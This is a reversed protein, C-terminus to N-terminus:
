YPNTPPTFASTWRAKGKSIRLEDMWGALKEANTNDVRGISLLGAHDTFAVTPGTISGFVTLASGDVFCYWNSIGQRVFAVHYWTNLQPTWSFAAIIPQAGSVTDSLAIIESSTALMLSWKNSADTYKDMLGVYTMGLYNFRVRFDITFDQLGFNFDNSDSLTLYDGDAGFVASTVGFVKQATVTKVAGNPTVAKGTEEPFIVGNNAGEMQMLLKVFGDFGAESGGTPIAGGDKVMHDNTGNWVALHNAATTGTDSVNGGGSTGTDIVINTSDSYPAVLGSSFSGTEIINGTINANDVKTLSIAYDTTKGYFVCGNIIVNKLNTTSDSVLRIAYYGSNGTPVGIGVGIFYLHHWFYTGINVHIGDKSFNEISTDQVHLIMTAANASSNDIDIGYGFVGSGGPPSMNIKLNTIKGGGSSEIRIAADANYDITNFNSNVISWDGADNNVTNQIKMGYKVPNISFVDNATWQAGVEIDFNIYFGYISVSDYDVKQELYSGATKIGASGSTPTGAYTNELSINEFKAYDATVTFLAANSTTFNIQTIAAGDFNGMGCGVVRTPYALTFGSGSVKYTGPPFYLVGGTSPIAAISAAIATTDDVSGDGIAGYNMVNIWGLNYALKFVESVLMSKLKYNPTDSKDGMLFVDDIAVGPATLAVLGGANENSSYDSM